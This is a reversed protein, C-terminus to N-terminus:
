LQFIFFLRPFLLHPFLLNLFRHLVDVKLLHGLRAVLFNLVLNGAQLGLPRSFNVLELRSTGKTVKRFVRFVTRGLPFEAM